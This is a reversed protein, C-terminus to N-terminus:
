CRLRASRDPRQLTPAKDADKMWQHSPFPAVYLWSEHFRGATGTLSRAQSRKLGTFHRYVDKGAFCIVRPALRKLQKRLRQAARAYEEDSIETAVRTPRDPVLDTIGFSYKWFSHITKSTRRSAPNVYSAGSVAALTIAGASGVTPTPILAVVFIVRLGARVIPKLMPSSRELQAANELVSKRQGNVM